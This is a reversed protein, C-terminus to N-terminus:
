AAIAEDHIASVLARRVPAILRAGRVAALVTAHSVEARRAVARAGDNAVVDALRQLDNDPLASRM